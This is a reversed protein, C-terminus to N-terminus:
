IKDLLLSILALKKEHATDRKPSRNGSRQTTTAAHTTNGKKQKRNRSRSRGNRSTSDKNPRKKKADQQNSERSPSSSREASRKRRRSKSRKRSRGNGSKAQPRNIQGEKPPAGPRRGVRPITFDKLTMTQHTPKMSKMEKPDSSKGNAEEKKNNNGQAGRFAAQYYAPLNQWDDASPQRETLWQKRKDLKRTLLAQERAMMNTLQHKAKGWAQSGAKITLFEARDLQAQASELQDASRSLLEEAVLRQLGRASLKRATLIKKMLGKDEAVYPPTPATGMVWPTIIPNTDDASLELLHKAYTRAKTGARTASRALKWMSEALFPLELPDQNNKTLTPDGSNNSGEQLAAALSTTDARGEMMRQNSEDDLDLQSFSLSLDDAVKNALLNDEHARSESSRMFVVSKNSNHLNSSTGTTIGGPPVNNVPHGCKLGLIPTPPTPPYDHTQNWWDPWSPSNRGSDPPTDGWRNFETYTTWDTDPNALNDLITLDGAESPSPNTNAEQPTQSPTNLVIVESDEVRPPQGQAPHSSGLPPSQREAPDIKGLKRPFMSTLKLQKLNPSRLPSRRSVGQERQPLPTPMTHALGISTCNSNSPEFNDVTLENSRQLFAETIRSIRTVSDRRADPDVTSLTDPCLFSPLILLSSRNQDSDRTDRKPDGSPHPDGGPRRSFIGSSLPTHFSERENKSITSHVITGLDYDLNEASRARDLGPESRCPSPPGVNNLPLNCVPHYVNRVDGARDSLKLPQPTPIDGYDNFSFGHDSPTSVSGLAQTTEKLIIDTEADILSALGPAAERTPSLSPDSIMGSDGTETSPVKRELSIQNSINSSGGEAM